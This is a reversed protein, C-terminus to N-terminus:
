RRRGRGTRNPEPFYTSTNLFTGRSGPTMFWSGTGTASTTPDRQLLEFQLRGIERGQSQSLYQAQRNFEQQRIQPRVLAYYNNIGGFNTQNLNLYPSTTPSNPQYRAVQASGTNQLLLCIGALWLQCLVLRVPRRPMAM